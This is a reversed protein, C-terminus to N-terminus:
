GCPNLEGETSTTFIMMLKKEDQSQIVGSLGLLILVAFILISTSAKHRRM